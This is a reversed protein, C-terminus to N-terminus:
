EKEARPIELSLMVLSKQLHEASIKYGLSTAILSTFAVQINRATLESPYARGMLITEFDSDIRHIRATSTIHIKNEDIAISLDGSYMMLTAVALMLNYILKATQGSVVELSPKKLISHKIKTGKFFNDILAKLTNFSVESDESVIGYSQRFFTLAHIMQKSSSSVLEISLRKMDENRSEIFDIGNNIAGIPGAMDHCFKACLLECFKIDAKILPRKTRKTKKSSSLSINKIEVDQSEKQIITNM